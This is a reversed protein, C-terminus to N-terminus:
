IAGDDKMQKLERLHQLYAFVDPDNMLGGFMQDAGDAFFGEPYEMKVVGNGKTKEGKENEVWFKVEKIDEVFDEPFDAKPDFYAEEFFCPDQALVPLRHRRGEHLVVIACESKKPDFLKCNKCIREIQRKKRGM